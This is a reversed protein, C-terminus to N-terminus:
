RQSAEHLVAENFTPWYEMGWETFDRNALMV